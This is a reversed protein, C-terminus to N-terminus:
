RPVYDNLYPTLSGTFSLLRQEASDQSEDPGLLTSVRILAGDSRHLRVSDAVLYYKAWYDSAVSRGHALYWYLVLQKQDGLAMLYRNVPFPSQGPPSVVIRSQEVPRWGAGPLCHRPTHITDGMRQSPFYAMYLEISTLKQDGEHYSRVLFDGPGLVSRAQPDIELDTGGTWPGLSRPLSALPERSVAVENDTRGYLFLGTAVLLIAAVAFRLNLNM